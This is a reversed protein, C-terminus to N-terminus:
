QAEKVGTARRGGLPRECPRLRSPTTGMLCGGHKASRYRARTPGATM